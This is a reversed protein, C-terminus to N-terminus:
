PVRLERIPERRSAITAPVLAAVLATSFTLIATASTFQVGPLPSGSAGLVVTAAAVGLACGTAALLATQTLLLTIILSRSAGLARRRGYDKRRMMVLGYLLIALLGGTVGLLALVLGRSFSGLQGEILSRLGALAESTELKVKSSDEAGLVSLVADSVPAVLEPEATIVVLSSIPDDVTVDPNPVVVLPQLESLYDPVRLTGVVSYTVGTTLSVAGAHEVLGLQDMAADSAYAVQDTDATAAPIGLAELHAGYLSRVPTKNGGPILTNTGDVAASLAGAWEIGDLYAIRELVDATVGAGEDFRVMISRTGASDISGLVQQEAAVTRGTTLMVSLIVGAVMLITLTSAVPQSRSSIAAERLLARLNTM